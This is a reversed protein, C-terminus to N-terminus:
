NYLLSILETSNKHNSKYILSSLYSSTFSIIEQYTLLQSHFGPLKIGFRKSKIMGQCIELTTHLVISFGSISGFVNTKYIIFPIDKFLTFFISKYIFPIPSLTCDDPSCYFQIGVECQISPFVYQDFMHKLIFMFYYACSSFM